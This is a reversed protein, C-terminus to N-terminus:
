DGRVKTLHLPTCLERPGCRGSLEGPVKGTAKRHKTLMKHRSSHCLSIHKTNSPSLDLQHVDLQVQAQQQESNFSIRTTSGSVVAAAWRVLQEGGEPSRARLGAVEHAPLAVVM